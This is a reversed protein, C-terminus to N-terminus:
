LGYLPSTSSASALQIAANKEELRKRRRRSLIFEPLLFFSRAYVAHRPDGYTEKVHGLKELCGSACEYRDLVFGGKQTLKSMNSVVYGPRLSLVDLTHGFELALARSFFDNFAKTACYPALYLLPRQGAVSSVSVVASRRRVGDPTAQCRDVLKNILKRTMMMQSTCNVPVIDLLFEEPIATFPKTHNVGVNNILVSVDLDALHDDYFRAWFTAAGCEKFDASVVRTKVGPRAAIVEDQAAKLRDMNRSILVINFNRKALEVAFGLGIGASAGTVVAWSGSGYRAELDLAPRLFQTTVFQLCKAIGLLLHAAGISACLVGLSSVVGSWIRSAAPTSAKLMILELLAAISRDPDAGGMMWSASMGAGFLAVAVLVGSYFWVLQQSSSATM